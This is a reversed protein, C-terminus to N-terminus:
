TFWQLNMGEPQGEYTGVIGSQQLFRAIGVSYQELLFTGVTQLETYIAEILRGLFVLEAGNASAPCQYIM